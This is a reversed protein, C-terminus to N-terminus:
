TRRLIRIQRFSILLTALWSFSTVGWVPCPGCTAFDVRIVRLSLSTPEFLFLSRRAVAKVTRGDDTTKRNSGGLAYPSLGFRYNGVGQLMNRSLSVPLKLDCM